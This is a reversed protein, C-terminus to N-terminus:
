SKTSRAALMRAHAACVASFQRLELVVGLAHEAVNPCNPWDCFYETLTDEKGDPTEARVTVRPM